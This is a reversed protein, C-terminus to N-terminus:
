ADEIPIAFSVEFGGGTCGHATFGCDEGYRAALREAVNVLGVGTGPPARRDGADAGSDHVRIRLRAGERVAAITLKVPRTSLAVAHRVANEVLPQVILSPVRVDQVDDPVDIEVVLRNPFRVAEIALYTSQLEIEEALPIDESPDLALGARLFDSLNEVMHEAHEVRGTGILSAISNLTNFMFHPNLQYRLARLHAEHAERQLRAVGREYDRVEGSYVIALLLGSMAAYTSFWQLMALLHSTLNTVGVVDAPMTARFIWFNAFAHVASGVVAAVVAILLRQSLPRGRTGIHLALIASSLVIGVGTVILRTAHFRADDAAGFVLRQVTLLSFQALWFLLITVASVRRTFRDSSSITASLPM